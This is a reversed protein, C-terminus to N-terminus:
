KRPKAAALEKLKAGIRERDSDSLAKNRLAQVYVASAREPKGQRLYIEGLM